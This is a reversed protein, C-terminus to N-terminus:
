SVAAATEEMASHPRCEVLDMVQPKPPVASHAKAKWAATRSVPCGWTMRVFGSQSPTRLVLGAQAALPSATPEDWEMTDEAPVQWTGVGAM